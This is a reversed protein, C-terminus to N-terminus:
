GTTWTHAHKQPGSTVTKDVLEYTHVASEKPRQADYAQKLGTTEYVLIARCCAISAAYRAIITVADPGTFFLVSAFIMTGYLIQTITMCETFWSLVIFIVSKQKCVIDPPARYATPTFEFKTWHWVRRLHSSSGPAEDRSLRTRILLWLSLCTFVHIAISFSFAWINTLHVNELGITIVTRTGLDYGTHAVNVIAACAILYELITVATRGKWGYYPFQLGAAGQDHLKLFEM